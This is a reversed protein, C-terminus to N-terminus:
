SSRRTVPISVVAEAGGEPRNGLRLRGGQEEILKKAHPLGLGLADSESSWFPKFAAYLAESTFGPGQDRVGVEAELGEAEVVVEVTRGAGFRGANSLLLYLADKFPETEVMVTVPAEPASLKVPVGTELTYERTVDQLLSLLNERSRPGSSRPRGFAILDRLADVADEAAADVEGGRLAQELPATVASELYRALEGLVETESTAAPESSRGREGAEVDVGKGASGPSPRKRVALFLALVAFFAALIWGVAEMPEEENTNTVTGV